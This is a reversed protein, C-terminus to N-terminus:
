VAKASKKTRPFTFAICALALAASVFNMVINTMFHQAIMNTSPNYWVKVTEGVKYHKSTEMVNDPIILKDGAEAQLSVESKNNISGTHVTYIGTVTFEICEYGANLARISNICLLVALVLLLCMCFVHLVRGVM